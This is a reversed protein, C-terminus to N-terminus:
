KQYMVFSNKLRKNRMLKETHVHIQSINGVAVINMLTEVERKLGESKACVRKRLVLEMEMGYPLSVDVSVNLILYM